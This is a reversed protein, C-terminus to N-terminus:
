PILAAAAPSLYPRIVSYPITCEPLGAAYPAIEYQQYIFRIGNPYFAPDASPLPVNDGTLILNAKMTEVSTEHFYQSALNAAVLQRLTELSEPAFMTETTFPIGRADFTNQIIQTSGHAGGTYCYFTSSYTVCTDSAVPTTIDWIFEYTLGPTNITRLDAKSEKILEGGVYSFLDKADNEHEHVGAILTDSCALASAVWSRTANVLDSPGKSPFQARISVTVSSKDVTASDAWQTTETSFPASKEAEAVPKSSCASLVTATTAISTVLFKSLSKM